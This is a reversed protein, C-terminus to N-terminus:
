TKGRKSRHRTEVAPNPVAPEISVMDYSLAQPTDKLLLQPYFNLVRDFVILGQQKFAGITVHRYFVGGYELVSLFFFVEVFKRRVLCLFAHLM